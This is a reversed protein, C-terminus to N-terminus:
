RGQIQGHETLGADPQSDDFQLLVVVACVVRELHFHDSCGRGNSMVNLAQSRCAVEADSLLGALPLFAIACTGLGPGTEIQDGPTARLPDDQDVCPCLATIGPLSRM